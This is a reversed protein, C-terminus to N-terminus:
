YLGIWLKTLWGINGRGAYLLCIVVNRFYGAHKKLQLKVKKSYRKRYQKQIKSLGYAHTQLEIAQLLDLLKRDKCAKVHKELYEFINFHVYLIRSYM